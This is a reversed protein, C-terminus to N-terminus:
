CPNGVIEICVLTSLGMILMSFSLISDRYGILIFDWIESFLEFGEGGGWGRQGLGAWAKVGLCGRWCSEQSGWVVDGDGPPTRSKMMMLFFFFDKQSSAERPHCIKCFVLAARGLSM